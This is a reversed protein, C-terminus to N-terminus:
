VSAAESKAEKSLRTRITNVGNITGNKASMMAMKAVTYTAVGGVIGTVSSVDEDNLIDHNIAYVGVLAGAGAAALNIAVDTAKNFINGINM